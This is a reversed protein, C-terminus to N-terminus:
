SRKPSILSIKLHRNKTLYVTLDLVHLTTDTSTHNARALLSKIQDKVAKNSYSQIVTQIYLRAVEKGKEPSTPGGEQLGASGLSCCFDLLDMAQQRETPIEDGYKSDPLTLRTDIIEGDANIKIIVDNALLEGIGRGSNIHVNEVMKTALEISERQDFNQLHPNTKRQRLIDDLFAGKRIDELKEEIKVVKGDESVATFHQDLGLDQINQAVEEMDAKKRMPEKYLAEFFSGGNDGMNRMINEVIDTIKNLASKIYTLLDGSAKAEFGYIGVNSEYLETPMKNNRLLENAKAAAKDANNELVLSDRDIDVVKYGWDTLQENLVKLIQPNEEPKANTDNLDETSILRILALRRNADLDEIGAKKIVLDVVKSQATEAAEPSESVGGPLSADLSETGADHPPAGADLQENNDPM